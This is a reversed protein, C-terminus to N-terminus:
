RMDKKDPEPPTPLNWNYVDKLILPVLITSTKRVWRVNGIVETVFHYLEENNRAYVQISLDREGTSCAVYSVQEFETMKQAVEQVHGPEIEMWVDATVPFGVARPNVIASVRLIGEQTMRDIRYRVARESVGGIRRAIEASPMRGDEMLLAIISRDVADM